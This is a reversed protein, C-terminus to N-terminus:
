HQLDYYSFTGVKPVMNDAYLKWRVNADPEPVQHKALFILNERIISYEWPMELGLDREDEPFLPLATQLSVVFNRESDRTMTANPNPAIQANIILRSPSTFVLKIHHVVQNGQNQIIPNLRYFHTEGIRKSLSNTFRVSVNPLVARNMVLRVEYDEMPEAKFNHRKYYKHDRAQHATTSAPIEVVYCVGVDSLNVPTITVGEIRPRILHIIDELWEKSFQTRDIPDLKEPFHNPSPFEKIGYIITGGDSNAMASVDKTIESTKDNQKALSAAAKYELQLQEEIKDDIHRQLEQETWKSVM